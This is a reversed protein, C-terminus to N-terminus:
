PQNAVPSTFATRHRHLLWFIVGYFVIGAIAVFLYFASNYAPTVQPQGPMTPLYSTIQITYQSLRTQYWPLAFLALNCCGFIVFGITFLRASEKLRLLGYGAFASVIAFCIYIIHAAGPPLIFGVFFAPFPLFVCALCLVSGFLLFVGIIKIATPARRFFSPNTQPQSLMNPNAFLERVSRLNFYILWWIGVAAVLLSIAIMVMFVIALIHPDATSQQAQVTPLTARSILIGFIGFVSIVALGGGIILISYRAWSRLRLIGIVTLIAWIALAAYFVSIALIVYTYFHPAAATGPQHQGFVGVSAMLGTMLILFLAALSLVIASLILGIPHKM